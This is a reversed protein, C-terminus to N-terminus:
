EYHRHDSGFRNDGKTGPLVWFEFYLWFQVIPVFFLVALWPNRDRDRLRKIVLMIDAFYGIGFLIVSTLWFGFSLAIAAVIVAFAIIMLFGIIYRQRNIRGESSFFLYLLHDIDFFAGDNFDSGNKM